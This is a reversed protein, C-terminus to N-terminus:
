EIERLYHGTKKFFTVKKGLLKAKDYTKYRLMSFITDSLFLPYKWATISQPILTIWSKFGDYEYSKKSVKKIIDVMQEYQASSLHHGFLSHYLLDFYQNSFYEELDFIDNKCLIIAIGHENKKIIEMKNKDLQEVEYIKLNKETSRINEIAIKHAHTSKDVGIIMLPQNYNQERLIELVQRDIEMGGAGLSVLVLPKKESLVFSVIKDVLPKGLGINKNRQVIILRGHMKKDWDEISFDTLEILRNGDIGKANNFLWKIYGPISRVSNLFIINEEIAYINDKSDPNKKFDELKAIIDNIEQIRQSPMIKIKIKLSM